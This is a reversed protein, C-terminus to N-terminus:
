SNGNLHFVTGKQFRGGGPATGYLIGKTGMLLGGQPTEGDAKGTFGHLVSESGTAITVSFATGRQAPGGSLTTGYLVGNNLVLDSAPLGGDSGGTFTYLVTENNGTLAYVTGKCCGYPRPPWKSVETTGYLTGDADQTVGAFPNGGDSGGMFNYLVTETNTTTDFKFVTGYGGSGGTFTTGYLNSNSDLILRAKPDAGDASGGAFSYLVTESANTDTQNFEIQFITGFGFTGGNETTGYLNGSIDMVLGAYPNGGDPDGSFSHLVTEAGKSDIKFVTGLGFDGGASTTGYLNGNQDLVLVGHPRAGDLGKFAYLVTEHKTTDLIFVVGFGYGGSSTTGYLNGVTDQILGATPESGNAGKFALDVGFHNGNQQQGVNNLFNQATNAHSALASAQLAAGNINDEIVGTALCLFIAATSSCFLM